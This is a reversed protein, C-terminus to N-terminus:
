IVIQTGDAEGDSVPGNPQVTLVHKAASTEYLHRSLTFPMARQLSNRLTMKKKNQRTELRM